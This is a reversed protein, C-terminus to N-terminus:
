KYVEDIIQRTLKVWNRIRNPDGQVTEVDKLTIDAYHNKLIELDRKLIKGIREEDFGYSVMDAPSPRY